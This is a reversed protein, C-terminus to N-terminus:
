APGRLGRPHPGTDGDRASAVPRADWSGPAVSGAPGRLLPAERGDRPGLQWLSWAGAAVIGVAALAFAPRLAPAALRAFGAGVGGRRPAPAPAHVAREIAALLRAEADELNAEPPLPGPAMFEEYARQRAQRLPDIADDPLRPESM